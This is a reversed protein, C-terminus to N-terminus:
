PVNLRRLMRQLFRYLRHGPKAPHPLTSGSRTYADAVSLQNLLEEGERLRRINELVLELMRAERDPMKPTCHPTILFNPASWLPHRPPLPEQTAVDTAAGAIQRGELARVLADEDVVGGRAVNILFATDKMTALEREGILQHSQDNLSTALVVFDSRRLLSELTAGDNACYLEDVQPCSLSRRRYAIVTMGFARAKRALAQGTHGLGVIGLTKGYLAQLEDQGSVGWCRARQAALFMPFRFNLAMMFFLAHEALAEASRGAGSTMALDGRLYDLKASREVGAHVFHVWRLRPMDALEGPLDEALVAADARILASRLAAQDHGGLELVQGPAMAERIARLSAESWRVTTVLCEMNGIAGGKRVETVAADNNM